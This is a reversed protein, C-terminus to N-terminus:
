RSRSAGHLAWETALADLALREKSPWWRYITAKSVGADRAVDDMSMAHLGHDLLRQMAAALIAKRAKESRPRGRSPTSEAPRTM